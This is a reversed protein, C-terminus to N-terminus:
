VLVRLDSISRSKYATSISPSFSPPVIQASRSLPLRTVKGKIRAKSTERTTVISQRPTPSLSEFLNGYDCIRLFVSQAGRGPLCEIAHESCGEREAFGDGDGIYRWRREESGCGEPM